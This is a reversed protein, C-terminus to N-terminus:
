KGTEIKSGAKIQAALDLARQREIATRIGDRVSEFAPANFARKERLMAVHFGFDTEIPQPTYAGPTLTAVADALAPPL